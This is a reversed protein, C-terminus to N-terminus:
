MLQQPSIHYTSEGLAFAKGEELIEGCGRCPYVIDDQDSDADLLSEPYRDESDLDTTSSSDRGPHLATFDGDDNSAIEAEQGPQPVGSASKSNDLNHGDLNYDHDSYSYPLEGSSNSDQVSTSRLQPDDIHHLSEGTHRAITSSHPPLIQPVQTEAGRSMSRPETPEALTRAAPLPKRPIQPHSTQLSGFLYDSPNSIDNSYLPLSFVSVVSLTMSELTLGSFISWSTTRVASCVSYRCDDNQAMRYVRSMKLDEDFAFRIGIAEGVSTPRYASSHRPRITGSESGSYSDKNDVRHSLISEVEFRTEPKMFREFLFQNIQLIRDVKDALALQARYAEMDSTSYNSLEVLKVPEVFRSVM